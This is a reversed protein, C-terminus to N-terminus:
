YMESTYINVSSNFIKKKKLEWFWFSTQATSDVATPTFEELILDGRDVLQCIVAPMFVFSM